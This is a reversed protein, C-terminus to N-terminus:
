TPKKDTGTSKLNIYDDLDLEVELTGSYDKEDIEAYFYVSIVFKNKFIRIISYKVPFDMDHGDNIYLFTESHFIYDTFDVRKEDTIELLKEPRCNLCFSFLYHDEEINGKINFELTDFEDQTKEQYNYQTQHITEVELKENEIKNLKGIKFM